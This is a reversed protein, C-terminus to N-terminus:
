MLHSDLKSNIMGLDSSGMIVNEPPCLSGYPGSKLSPVIYPDSDVAVNRFSYKGGPRENFYTTIRELQLDSEGNYDGTPRIGHEHALAEWFRTSMKNGCQGVQIHVIERMYATHTPKNDSQSILSGLLRSIAQYHCLSTDHGRSPAPSSSITIITPHAQCYHIVMMIHSLTICHVSMFLQASFKIILHMIIPLSHLTIVCHLIMLVCHDSVM